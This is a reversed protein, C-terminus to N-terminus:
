RLSVAIPGIEGIGRQDHFDLPPHQFQDCGPGGQALNQVREGPGDLAERRLRQTGDHQEILLM